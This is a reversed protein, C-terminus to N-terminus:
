YRLVFSVSPRSNIHDSTPMDLSGVQRKRSVGTTRESILTQQPASPKTRSAITHTRSGIFLVFRASVPM